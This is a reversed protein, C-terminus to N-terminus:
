FFASAGFQFGLETLTRDIDDTGGAIGIDAHPTFTLGVRQGLVLFVLPVELTLATATEDSAGSDIVLHTLGARPWIGFRPTPQAFYGVRALFSWTSEDVDDGDRSLSEYGVAGGFSLQSAAVYDLALRPASYGRRGSSSSFVSVSTSTSSVTVNGVEVENTVRSIGFMREFSLAWNGPPAALADRGPLACVAAAAATWVWRQHRQM